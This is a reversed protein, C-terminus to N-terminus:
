LAAPVPTCLPPSQPLSPVSRSPLLPRCGPRFSITHPCPEPPLPNTIPSQELEAPTCDRNTSINTPAVLNMMVVM